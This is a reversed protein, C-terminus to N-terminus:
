WFINRVVQVVRGTYQDILLADDGSRVWGFGLPAQPLDFRWPDNIWYGSGFWGRPLFDGYGWSRSYFGSPPRWAYRYRNLSSYVSPYRGREWRSDRDYRDNWDRDWRRRDDRDWGSRRDRDHDWHRGDDRRGEDGGGGNRHGEDHRGEDRRGEGGGRRAEGRDANPTWPGPRGVADGPVSGGRPQPAQPPEVAQPAERAPPAVREPRPADWERQRPENDPETREPRDRGDREYSQAQALSAQALFVVALATMAMKM